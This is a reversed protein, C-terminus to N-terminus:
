VSVFEGLQTFDLGAGEAYARAAEVESIHERAAAEVARLDPGRRSPSAGATARLARSAGVYRMAIEHRGDASELAALGAVCESVYFAMKRSVAVQIGRLYSERAQIPKGALRLVDGQCRLAEPYWVYRGGGEHLSVTERAFEVARTFDGDLALAEAYVGLSLALSAGQMVERGLAVSEELPPIADKVNGRELAVEGQVFLAFALVQKDDLARLAREAETVLLLARDLQGLRVLVWGLIIAGYAISRADSQARRLELAREALEAGRSTEGLQFAVAGLNTLSLSMGRTDARQEHLALAEESLTRARELDGAFYMTWGMHNLTEAIGRADGAARYIDLAEQLLFNATGLDSQEYALIAASSLVRVRVPSDAATHPLALAARLRMRAETHFGRIIWFRGLAACLRLARATESARITWDFAARFDDHERQLRSVWFAQSAGSLEPAAAEALAILLDAHAARTLTDEGSEALRELAYERVTELMAFRPEEDEGAEQRLLSKDVLATVGELATLAPV